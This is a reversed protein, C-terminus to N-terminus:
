RSPKSMQALKTALRYPENDLTLKMMSGSRDMGTIRSTREGLDLVAGCRVAALPLPCGIASRVYGTSVTGRATSAGLEALALEGLSTALADSSTDASMDTCATIGMRVLYHTEDTDTVTVTKPEGAADRYNVVIASALTEMDSETFEGESRTLDVSLSAVTERTQYHPVFRQEMGVFARGWFYDMSDYKIAEDIKTIDSSEEFILPEITVASDEIWSLWATSTPFAWAPLDGVCDKIVFQPTVPHTGTGYVVINYFKGHTAAALEYTNTTAMSFFVTVIDHSAATVTLTGTGTLNGSGASQSWSVDDGETDRAVAYLEFDTSPRSWSFTVYLERTAPITLKVLYMQPNTVATYKYDHGVNTLPFVINSGDIQPMEPNATTDWTLIAPEYDSTATHAYYVARRTISLPAASGIATVKGKRPADWVWGHWGLGNEDFLRTEGMLLDDTDTVEFSAQVPGGKVSWSAELPSTTPVPVGVHKTLCGTIAAGNGSHEGVSGYMPRGFYSFAPLVPGSKRSTDVAGDSDLAFAPLQAADAGQYIDPIINDTSFEVWGVVDGANSGGATADDGTGGYYATGAATSTSTSGIEVVIHDGALAAVSTISVGTEGIVTSGCAAGTHNSLLTGRVNSTDGQTVWVHMRANGDTRFIADAYSLTGSITRAYPLPASVARLHAIAGGVGADTQSYTKSGAKDGLAKNLSSSAAWTGKLGAPTYSPSANALYLRTAM